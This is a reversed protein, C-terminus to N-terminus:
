MFTYTAIRGTLVLDQQEERKELDSQLRGCRRLRCTRSSLNRTEVKVQEGAAGCLGWGGAGQGDVGDERGQEWHTASCLSRYRPWCLLTAGEPFMQMRLSGNVSLRGGCVCVRM